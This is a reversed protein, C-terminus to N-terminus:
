CSAVNLFFIYQAALVIARPMSPKGTKNPCVGMHVKM